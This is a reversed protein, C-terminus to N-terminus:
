PTPPPTPRLWAELTGAFGSRPCLLVGDCRVPLAHLIQHEMDGFRREHPITGTLPAWWLARPLWLHGDVDQQDWTEPWATIHLVYCDAPQNWGIPADWTLTDQLTWDGGPLSDLWNTTQTRHWLLESNYGAVEAREAVQGGSPGFFASGGGPTPGTLQLPGRRWFDLLLEISADTLAWFINAMKMVRTWKDDDADPINNVITKIEDSLLHLSNQGTKLVDTAIKTLWPLGDEEHTQVDPDASLWSNLDGTTAPDGEGPGPIPEPPTEGWTVNIAYYATQVTTPYAPGGATRFSPADDFLFPTPPASRNSVSGNRAYFRSGFIRAAVTYTTGTAVTLPPDITTWTWGAATATTPTTDQWLLTGTPGYIGIWRWSDDGAAPQYWGARTLDGAASVQFRIGYTADESSGYDWSWSTNLQNGYLDPM